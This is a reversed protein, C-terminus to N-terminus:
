SFQSELTLYIKDTIARFAKAEITDPACIVIPEGKDAGLRIETSLPIEGLFPLNLAEAESRAGGHGFIATNKHCHPCNFYSMNEVLGLIPTHTREFLTVGRRADLLAIDQPTSIIIAGGKELKDGLKKTLTLQADGTGPPLDIVMVDLKGWQVDDLLQSVAGMIMPGRWILAQKEDVLYGISMTKLGWKEIPILKGNVVEPKTDAGLMVPLSPGYIDLDLLGTKLGKQALGCALNIAATSKGVGGKGSAVAIVLKVEPLTPDNSPKGGLPRHMKQNPATSPTQAAIFSLNVASLDTKKKLLSDLDEKLSKLFSENKVFSECSIFAQNERVIVDRLIIRKTLEKHHLFALINERILSTVSDNEQTM